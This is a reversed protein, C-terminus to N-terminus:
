DLTNQEPSISEQEEHKQKRKNKLKVVINKRYIIVALIGVVLMLLPLIVIAIVKILNQSRNPYLAVQDGVEKGPIMIGADENDALYNIVSLFFQRNGGACDADVEDNFFIDSTLLVIKGANEKESLTAVSYSGSVDDESKTTLNDFDSAKAFAKASTTLLDTCTYGNANGNKKIGKSTMTLVSLHNDELKKTITHSQIEPMLYYATDYVYNNETGEVLVGTQLQLGYEEMFADFRTLDENLPDIAVFIRGGDNMYEKLADIEDESYDTQPADIVLTTCSEPITAEVSNLKEQLNLEKLEYNNMRLMNSFATDLTSEGHGTVYYIKRSDESNVYYIASTLQNELELTNKYSYTSTQITSVYDDANLYVYKDDSVVVMSTESVSSVNALYKSRFEQDSQVNKYHIHVKDNLKAYQALLEQYTANVRSREGLYYIDTDKGIDSVVDQTDKSFTLLQEATCDYVKTINMSIGMLCACAVIGIAFRVMFRGFGLRKYEVALWTVGLFFIALSCLYLIDGSRVIGSVMAYYINYVSLSHLVHYLRESPVFNEIIKGLFVVLYVGYALIVALVMNSTLSSVLMGVSLLVMCVLIVALYAGLLFPVSLKGCQAIYIPYGASLVFPVLLVIATALFKGLLVGMTSVPATFLLQETRNKKEQALLHMTFLPAMLLVAAFAKSLAYYGFETSYNGLCSKVFYAGLILFFMAYYVYTSLSTYYGKLEKKLITYM